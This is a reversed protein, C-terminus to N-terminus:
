AAKKIRRAAIAIRSANSGTRHFATDCVQSM